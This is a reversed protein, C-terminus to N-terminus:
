KLKSVFDLLERTRSEFTLQKVDEMAQNAIKKAYEKEEVAKRIGKALSAPQDPEVFIVNSENLVDRTAPFDPTVVPNRTSLYENVKQPYNFEIMHDKSTYYSVLVDAAIQFNRVFTSDDFFGTFIVNSVGREECYKKVADVVQPRGGTFLFNYEPLLGATEFIYIVELVDLGLKGTYVVLPKDSKYDIIKRAETKTPDNKYVPVPALSLIFKEEPVTAIERIADRTTSVGAFIGDTERIVKRYLNNSKVEAAMFIVKVRFLRGFIKKFYLAPVLLKPDRSFLITRKRSFLSSIFIRLTSWSFALMMWFLFAYKSSTERLPTYLMRTKVRYQLGYSVPINRSHINGKMYAYPYVITVPVGHGAFSDCLRMDFIRNTTPRLLCYPSFVIIRLPKGTNM